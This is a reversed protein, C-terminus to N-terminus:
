TAGDLREKKEGQLMWSGSRPIGGVEEGLEGKERKIKGM